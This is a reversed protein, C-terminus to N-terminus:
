GDDNRGTRWSNLSLYFGKLYPFISPFTRSMHVLFGVDREMQVADVQHSRKVMIEITWHEVIGKAKDWKKQTCTVFLGDDNSLCMAGAWAGPTRSPPRRKRPADQQGLSNIRSAVRRTALRCSEESSGMGRIDDIYCAFDAALRRNISDWKYVWPLSTNYKDNGPLNLKVEDWRLPNDRERRDGRIFDEGWGFTQTCVYPSPRFGM